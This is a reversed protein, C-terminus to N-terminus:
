SCAAALVPENVYALNLEQQPNAITFVSCSNLFLIAQERDGKFEELLMDVSGPDAEYAVKLAELQKIFAPAQDATAFFAAAGQQPVELLRCCAEYQAKYAQYKVNGGCDQALSMAMYSHFVAHQYQKDFKLARSLNCHAAHIKAKDGTLHQELRISLVLISASNLILKEVLAPADESEELMDLEELENLEKYNRKFSIQLSKIEDNLVTRHAVLVASLSDLIPDHAVAKIYEVRKMWGYLECDPTRQMFEAVTHIPTELNAPVNRARAIFYNAGCFDERLQSFDFLMAGGGLRMLIRICEIRQPTEGKEQLLNLAKIRANLRPDENFHVSRHLFSDAGSNLLSLLLRPNGQQLSYSLPNWMGTSAFKNIDAGHICLLRVVPLSYKILASLLPTNFKNFDIFDNLDVGDLAARVAAVDRQNIAALLPHIPMAVQEARKNFFDNLAPSGGILVNLTRLQEIHDEAELAALSGAVTLFRQHTHVNSGFAEQIFPDAAGNARLAQDTFAHPELEPNVVASPERLHSVCQLYFTIEFRKAFTEGEAVKKLEDMVFQFVFGRQMAVKPLGGYNVLNKEFNAQGRVLKALAIV